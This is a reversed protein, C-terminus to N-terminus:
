ERDMSLLLGCYREWLNDMQGKQMWCSENQQWNPKQMFLTPSTASEENFIRGNGSGYVAITSFFVVRKVGAQVAAKIVNATGGVNVREYKERLGPPPNIIHLLAALHIVVEAEQMASKVAAIDTVDGFRVEISEPFQVTGPADLSLTRISYGADYLAQVVRPGVAGTGGTVLVIRKM